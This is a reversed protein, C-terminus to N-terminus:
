NSGSLVLKNSNPYFGVILLLSEEVKVALDCNTLEGIKAGSVVLAPPIPVSAAFTINGVVVHVQPIIRNGIVQFISDFPLRIVQVSGGRTSHAHRPSIYSYWFRPLDGNDPCSARPTAKKSCAALHTGTLVLNM